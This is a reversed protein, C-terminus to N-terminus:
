LKFPIMQFLSPVCHTSTYIEIGIKIHFKKEDEDDDEEKENKRDM